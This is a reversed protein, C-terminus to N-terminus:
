ADVRFLRELARVNVGPPTMRVLINRLRPWDSHIFAGLRFSQNVISRVKKFRRTQFADFAKPADRFEAVCRALSYADEVAQAGGQGMNPTMPHAADGILCVRGHAWPLRSPLDELEVETIVETPTARILEGAIEPFPRPDPERGVESSTVLFWYAKGHGVDAIGMRTKRSWIEVTARRFRDPLDFLALGRWCVQGTRRLPLEGVISRRVTSHIGDAGILFSGGASTGDEFIARPTESHNGTTRLRKNLHVAERGFADLLLRHLEARQIAVIGFGFKKRVAAQDVSALQRLSTDVISVKDIEIGAAVIGAALGLRHFIQMANPAMWIGAGIPDITRASEYIESEIGAQRLAIGATLGAIGAGIIVPGNPIKM